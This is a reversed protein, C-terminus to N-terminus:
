CGTKRGTVTRLDGYATLMPEDALEVEEYAGFGNIRSAM